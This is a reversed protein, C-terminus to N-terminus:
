FELTSPAFLEDVTVGRTLLEQERAYRILTELVPRSQKLGYPALDSAFLEPDRANLAGTELYSEFLVRADSEAQRKAALFAKYLNIAIWPHQQYVSRRIVVVHNIPFIGTKSFYRAKEANVDSFLPRIQDSQGLDAKSRDVLNDKKLYLLTADLEGSLLMGGINKHSPIQNIKVDQPPVFGTAYGHSKDPGREMFWEIEQPLVSFEHQLIGRSWVAATQQYEPVGVRKGRLDAPRNIDANKRVLVWTHFFRRTTYVPIALWRADGKAVAILYSSLSMESVDFDGFRLQRWFIESPDVVTTLLDIGEARVYNGILPRTRENAGVAFSLKLASV